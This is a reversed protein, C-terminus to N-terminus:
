VSRKVSGFRAVAALRAPLHERQESPIAPPESRDGDGTLARRAFRAVEAAVPLLVQGYWAVIVLDEGCGTEVGVAWGRYEDWVLAVDRDPHRALRGDLALYAGAEEAAECWIGEPGLAMESAVSQVYALLGRELSEADVGDAVNMGVASIVAANIGPNVVTM